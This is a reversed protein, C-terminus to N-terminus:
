RAVVATDVTKRQKIPLSLKFKTGQGIVSEVALLGGHKKVISYSLSLGLGTGQGIPKTTFFPDFIRKLNEADIGQGTDEIEVWVQDGTQGTRITIVGKVKIAHGANVLLNMFVQNLKSPYCEVEPIDAYEKRVEAKYKLENWIINLTSDLGQQLNAWQWVDANDIRSFDKLDQVIKKVRGIGERTEDMLARIDTRLYQIDAAAKAVRIKEVVDTDTISLEAAEYVSVLRVLDQTYTELTSLNSYVYGIPNNIEHAVGAALQGVSAMKESQLLQNQMDKLRVNLCNIEAYHQDLAEEAQWRATIDRLTAVYYTGADNSAEAISIEMPFLVGNKHKGHAEGAELLVANAGHSVGPVLLSIHSGVVEHPEYGFLSVAAPSFSLLNGHGDLSVIADPASDILAKLHARSAVVNHVVPALRWRLLWVGGASLLLLLPLASAFSRQSVDLFEARDRQMVMGLGSNGVAGYAAVVPQRRSGHTLRTGTGGELADHMPLPKGANFRAIKANGDPTWRSPFCTMEQASHKGCLKFEGTKGLDKQHAFLQDIDVLTLQVRGEGLKRDGELIPVRQDLYFRRSWFLTAPYPLKAIASLKVHSLFEGRKGLVNGQSDRLEIAHLNNRKAINDLIRALDAYDMPTAKEDMIRGLVTKLHPRSTAMSAGVESAHALSQMIISARDRVTQEVEQEMHSQTNKIAQWLIVAGTGFAVMLLVGAATLGIRREELECGLLSCKLRHWLSKSPTVSSINANSSM